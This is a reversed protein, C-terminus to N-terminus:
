RHKGRETRIWETSDGTDPLGAFLDHATQLARRVEPKAGPGLPVGLGRVAFETLLASRSIGRRAAERDLRELLGPDLSVLVKTM